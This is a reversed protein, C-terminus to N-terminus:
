GGAVYVAVDGLGLWRLWAEATEELADVREPPIKAALRVSVSWGDWEARSGALDPVRRTVDPWLAALAQRVYIDAEPDIRGRPM